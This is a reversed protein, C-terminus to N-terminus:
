AKERMIRGSENLKKALIKCFIRRLRILKNEQASACRNETGNRGPLTYHKNVTLKRWASENGRRIIAKFYLLSFHFNTSAFGRRPIRYSAWILVM